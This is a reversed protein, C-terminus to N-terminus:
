RKSTISLYRATRQFFKANSRHQNFLPWTKNTGKKGGGETEGSYIETVKM